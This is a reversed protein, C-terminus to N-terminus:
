EVPTPNILVTIRHNCFICAIKGKFYEYGSLVVKERSADPRFYYHGECLQQEETLEDEVVIWQRETILEDQTYVRFFDHLMEECTACQYRARAYVENKGSLVEIKLYEPNKDFVFSSMWTEHHGCTEAHVLASTFLLSVLLVTSLIKKM